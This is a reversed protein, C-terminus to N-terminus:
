LRREVEHGARRYGFPALVRAWGKRGDLTIRTCGAGRAWAELGPRLALVAELRGAALWVHLCPGAEGTALETALVAGEGMWIRARGTRVAEALDAPGADSALAKVALALAERDAEAAGSM